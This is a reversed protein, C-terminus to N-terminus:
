KDRRRRRRHRLPGGPDVPRPKPKKPPVPVPLPPAQNLRGIMGHPQVRAQEWTTPDTPDEGYPATPVTGLYVPGDPTSYTVPRAQKPTEQRAPQAVALNRDGGQSQALAVEEMAVRLDKRTLTM